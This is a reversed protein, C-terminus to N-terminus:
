VTLLLFAIAIVCAFCVASGIVIRAKNRKIWMRREIKKEYEMSSIVDGYTPVDRTTDNM